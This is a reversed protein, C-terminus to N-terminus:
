GINVLGSGILMSGDNYFSFVSTRAFSSNGATHDPVTKGAWGLAGSSAAWTITYSQSIPEVVELLATSGASPPTLTLTTNASLTVKARPYTSFDVTQTAGITGYDHPTLSPGSGSPGQAGQAGQPGAAGQPGQSGNTGTPGQPGQTGAGTAGQAGQAGNTGPAGQTGQAGIAGQPGTAGAVTPITVTMTEGDNAM